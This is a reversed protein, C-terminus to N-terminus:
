KDGEYSDAFNSLVEISKNPDMDEIDVYETPKDVLASELEANDKLSKVPASYPKDKKPPAIIQIQKAYNDLTGAMLKSSLERILKYSILVTFANSALLGIIVVGLVIETAQM